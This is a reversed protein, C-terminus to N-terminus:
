ENRGRPSLRAITQWDEATLPNAEITKVLHEKNWVQLHNNIGLVEVEAELRVKQRLQPSILVRGKPDIQNVSGMHSVRVQFSQVSQNFQNAGEQTIGTLKIWVPLPYIHVADDSLSTVFLDKGFEEEIAARFKEPIKLRGSKDLRASFSGLIFNGM